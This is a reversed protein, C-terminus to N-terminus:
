DNNDNSKDDNPGTDPDSIYAPTNNAAHTNNKPTAAIDPTTADPPTVAGNANQTNAAHNNANNPAANDSPAMPNDLNADNTTAISPAHSNVDPQTDNAASNGITPGDTDNQPATATQPTAPTSIAKAAKAFNIGNEALIESPFNPHNYWWAGALGVVTFVVLYSFTKMAYGGSHIPSLNKLTMGDQTGPRPKLSDLAKKTEYEPIQLFKAYTKLYGRVFTLPLDPAFRDKEMMVLFKENLRLQAAVDKRELNMAERANKLRTGFSINKDAQPTQTTENQM